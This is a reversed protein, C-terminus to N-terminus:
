EINECRLVYRSYGSYNCSFVSLDWGSSEDLLKQLQYGGILEVETVIFETPNGYCDTFIVSDGENVNGIDILFSKYNHGCIIMNGDQLNGSYRCLSESMQEYSYDKSVPLEVNISPIELIGCYKTDDVILFFESENTEENNESIGPNVESIEAKLDELIKKSAKESTVNTYVNYGYLAAAALISIIGLTVLITSRKIKMKEEIRSAIILM